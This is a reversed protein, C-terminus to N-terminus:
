CKGHFDEVDWKVCSQGLVATDISTLSGFSPIGPTAVAEIFDSYLPTISCSAGTNIVIHLESPHLPTFISCHALAIFKNYDAISPVLSRAELLIHKYTASTLLISTYHDSITTTSLNTCTHLHNIVTFLLLLENVLLSYYPSMDPGPPVHM